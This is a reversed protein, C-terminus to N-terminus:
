VGNQAHDLCFSEYHLAKRETNIKLEQIHKPCRHILFYSDTIWQKRVDDKTILTYKM